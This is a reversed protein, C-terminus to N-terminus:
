PPVPSDCGILTSLLPSARLILLRNCSLMDSAVRRVFSPRSASAVAAIWRARPPMEIGTAESSVSPGSPGTSVVPLTRSPAM